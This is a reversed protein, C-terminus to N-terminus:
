VLLTGQLPTVKATNVIRSVFLLLRNTINADSVGSDFDLSLLNLSPYKEKLKKEVGRAIIHNAICGFPQLCVVNDIGSKAFGVIEAPLLWGEGYQNILSVIEQGNAAVEYINEIPQYLSYAAAERNVKKIKGNVANFAIKMIWKPVNSPEVHCRNKVERNVFSQMFFDTLIPPVVECGNTMLWQAIDRNAFSHFKLYIEGVIGVKPKIISKDVIADFDVALQRILTYIHSEQKKEIFPIALQLYKEKLRNAAGVEKERVVASYYIKALVDSFLLAAIATPLIKMWNLSFDPQDNDLANNNFTISVVPIDAYGAEILARKILSIYNSARCQGGTQTMGICINGHNPQEKLYKVIDGVVLTAPYCIENNAYQLGYEVSKEDSKPLVVAEHGASKIISPLLPSTFDTFFPLIIKRKKDEKTYPKNRVIDQKEGDVRDMQLSEILSRIRLKLSGVNNIDDVKLLTLTKGKSKLVQQVEDIFFADPGCGFSTLQVFHIDNPAEAVWEACRMIRNIYSWQKVLIGTPEMERGVTRLIDETIVQVGMSAIIDSIKHQILPDAHYPRGALVITIKGEERGKLYLESCYNAMEEEFHTQAKLAKQLAKQVLTAPVGLTAFYDVCQKELLTEDKFSIVPSDVAIKQGNTSRIVENYGSVVPCNYSNSAGNTMREFQVFPMFIREVNKQLLNQIHSHALKAPFCINDSMVHQVQSEYETFTSADSLVVEIGCADFLTHWFPYNEYFNLVRPIGIKQVSQASNPRNFLLDLKFTYANDGREASLSYNNFISECKNGSYYKGGKEFRFQNVLCNNECGKCIIQKTTYHSSTLLDDIGMSTNAQELAYLACGYAGMLEPINSRVVSKQTVIEFARVVADNRMTGGQLVIHNGLQNADVMKLVKYLCNKIVSYSLGASIDGVSAGERLSQKVKSNMFVTCRTGLDAPRKATLAEQVFQGIEYNLSTAFSSIFSGCGSSCAENIEIRSLVGNKVFIAKMDQGGIDLVFSVNPNLHKAAMFHAITEVINCQLGFATKILEEGYGTSCSGRVIPSAGVEECAQQLSKLGEMVTAIPNGNNNSYHAFRVDNNDDIAVIKTTTSGSDIGIYLQQTEKDIAKCEINNQAKKARWTQHTEESQFLTPLIGSKKSNGKPIALQECLDDVSFRKYASLAAGYAPIVEGNEPRVCDEETLELVTHFAARLSSIFTLPGGCFLVKPHIRTSKSLTTITQVAVARFVSAAIDAKCVNKAILNQIDTKSFVGCRSAIPYTHQANTALEDMQEVPVNLLVAMQDIFSGTGGACNSNMRLDVYDGNKLYVIKSDEGGVDIIASVTPYYEKVYTTACVVEQLFPIGLMESIGLGVNGTVQFQASAINLKTKIEKLVEVLVKSANAQHRRYVSYQLKNENDLVVVKLTTSGIDIGIKMTVMNEKDM